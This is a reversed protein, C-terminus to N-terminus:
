FCVAMGAATYTCVMHVPSSEEEEEEEDEEDERRTTGM